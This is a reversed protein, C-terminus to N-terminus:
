SSPNQTLTKKTHLVRQVATAHTGILLILLVPKLLPSFLTGAALLFIREARGFIGVGCNKIFNEARAKTYSVAFAGLIIGMSVLAWFIDGRSFFYVAVGAFIFFDSYRDVVSDLLAGFPTVKGTARALPGDLLDGLGAILLFVGGVFLHGKAYVVGALFNLTVGAFTLQNPSIGQQALVTVIKQIQTEFKPYITKRLM